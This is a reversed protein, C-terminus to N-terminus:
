TYSYFTRIILYANCVHSLLSFFINFLNINNKLKMGEGEEERDDSDVKTMNKRSIEYMENIAQTLVLKAPCDCICLAEVISLDINITPLSLAKGITYAMEQCQVETLNHVNNFFIM